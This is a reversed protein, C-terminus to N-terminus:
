VLTVSIHKNDKWITIFFCENQLRFVTETEEILFTKERSIGIFTNGNEIYLFKRCKSISNNFQKLECIKKIIEEKKKTATNKM